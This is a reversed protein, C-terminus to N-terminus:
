GELGHSLNLRNLRACANPLGHRSGIRPSLNVRNVGAFAGARPHRAPSLNVRNIRAFAQMGRQGPSRRLRAVVCGSAPGRGEGPLCFGDAPHSLNVRKVCAFAGGRRRRAPSLNVRNICARTGADTLSLNVRNIRSVAFAM